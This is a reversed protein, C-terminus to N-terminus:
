SAAEEELKPVCDPCGLYVMEGTWVVKWGDPPELGVCSIAFFGYRMSMRTQYQICKGCLDCTAKALITTGM